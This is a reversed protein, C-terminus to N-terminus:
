DQKETAKLYGKQINNDIFIRMRNNQHNKHWEIEEAFLENILPIDKEADVPKISFHKCDNRDSFLYPVNCTVKYNDYRVDVYHEYFGRTIVLAGPEFEFSEDTVSEPDIIGYVHIFNDERDIKSYHMIQKYFGYTKLKLEELELNCLEDFLKNRRELFPNSAKLEDERTKEIEKRTEEIKNRLNKLEEEREM